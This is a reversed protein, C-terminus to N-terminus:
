KQSRLYVQRLMPVPLANTSAQTVVHLLETHSSGFDYSVILSPMYRLVSGIASSRFFRRHPTKTIRTDDSAIYLILNFRRIGIVTTLIMIIVVLSTTM